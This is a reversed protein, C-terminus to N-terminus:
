EDNDEELTTVAVSEAAAKAGEKGAAGKALEEICWCGAGGQDLQM